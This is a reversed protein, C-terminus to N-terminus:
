ALGIGAVWFYMPDDANATGPEVLPGSGSSGNVTMCRCSGTGQDAEDFIIIMDKDVPNTGDDKDEWMSGLLCYNTSSATGEFDLTWEAVDFRTITPCHHHGEATITYPASAGAVKVKVWFGVTNNKYIANHFIGVGADNSSSQGAFLGCTIAGLPEDSELRANLWPTGNTTGRIAFAPSAPSVGTQDNAFDIDLCRIGNTNTAASHNIDIIPAGSGPASNFAWQGTITESQSIGPYIAGHDDDSLGTLAGHDTAGAVSDVYGKTTLTLAPDGGITATGQVKGTFARTGDVLSAWTHDGPDGLGGLSGHDVQAGDAGGTHAHTLLNTFGHVNATNVEHANLAADLAGIATTLSTGQGVHVVSSYNPDSDTEGTAGIFTFLDDSITDGITTEEGQELEQKAGRVFLKSGQRYAIWFIDQDFPVANRNAIVLARDGSVGRQGSGPGGLEDDLDIYAVQDDALVQGSETATPITYNTGTSIVRIILDASFTFANGGDYAITGGGTTLSNGLDTYLDTINFGGTNEFWHAEGSVEKFRTMALDLWDKLSNIDKDGGTFSTQAPETQGALPSNFTDDFPQGRGLRFYLSRRDRIATIVGGAADVEALPIKDADAVFGTTNILLEVDVFEETDITQLFEGGEGDNLTPDWFVRTASTDTNGSVVHLHVYNTAADSVVAALAAHGAEGLYFENEGPAQTNFAAGGDVSVEISLGGPPQDAVVFGKVVWRDADTLFHRNYAKFDDEVFAQLKDFDPKDVRQNELFRIKHLLAM